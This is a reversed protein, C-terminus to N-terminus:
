QCLVSSWGRFRLDQLGSAVLYVSIALGSIALGRFGCDRVLFDEVWGGAGLGSFGAVTM